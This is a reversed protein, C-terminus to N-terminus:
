KILFRNRLALAVLFWLITAIIRELMLLFYLAGGTGGAVTKLFEASEKINFPSLYFLSLLGADYIDSPQCLLVFMLYYIITSVVGLVTLWFLPIELSQGYNSINKYICLPILKLKNQLEDKLTMEMEGAFAQLQLDRDGAEQAMVKLRRYRDGITDSNEKEDKMQEAPPPVPITINNITIAKEFNCLRFNPVWKCKLNSFNANGQFDSGYFDLEGKSECDSFNVKKHFTADSFDAKKLFTKNSFDIKEHFTANSFDVEDNFKTDSFSFVQLFNTSGFNVTKKFLTTNIFNLSKEFTTKYFVAEDRFKTNMFTTGDKFTSNSFDTKKRFRIDFFHVNESFIINTFDVEKAFITRSFAVNRATKKPYEFTDSFFNVNEYFVVNRFYISHLNTSSQPTVQILFSVNNCDIDFLSLLHSFVGEDIDILQNNSQPINTTHQQYQENNGIVANDFYIYDIGYRKQLKDLFEKCFKNYNDDGS